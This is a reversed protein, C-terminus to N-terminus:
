EVMIGCEKLIVIFLRIPSSGIDEIGCVSIRGISSYVIYICIKEEVKIPSSGVVGHNVTM